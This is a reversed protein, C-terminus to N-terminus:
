RLLREVDAPQLHGSVVVTNGQRSVEVPTTGRALSVFARVSDELRRANQDDRCEGWARIESQATTQAMAGAFRTFQLLRNLNRANGSLPLTASGDAVVWLPWGAPVHALLEPAGSKGTRHQAVAATVYDPSGMIALDPGIVTAGALRGRAAVVFRVGDSAAVATSADKLPELASRLLPFFPSERLQRLDAGGILLAGPPICSELDRDLVPSQKHCAALLM